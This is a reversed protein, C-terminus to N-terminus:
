LIVENRLIHAVRFAAWWKLGKVDGERQKAERHNEDTNGIARPLTIRGASIGM